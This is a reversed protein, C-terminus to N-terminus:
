MTVVAANSLADAICNSFQERVMPVGEGPEDCKGRIVSCKFFKNDTVHILRNIPAVIGGPDMFVGSPM